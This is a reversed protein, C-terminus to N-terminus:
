PASTVLENRLKKRLTVFFGISFVISVAAVITWWSFYPQHIASAALVNPSDKRKRDDAYKIVDSVAQPLAFAEPSEGPKKGRTDTVVMKAPSSVLFVARDIEENIKHKSNLSVILWRLNNDHYFVEIVVTPVSIGNVTIHHSQWMEYAIGKEEAKITAQLIDGVDNFRFAHKGFIGTHSSKSDNKVTFQDEIIKVNPIYRLHEHQIKYISMNSNDDIYVQSPTAVVSVGNTVVVRNVNNVYNAVSKGDINVIIKEMKFNQIGLRNKILAEASSSDSVATKNMADILLDRPIKKDTLGFCKYSTSTFEATIVEEQMSKWRSITKKAIERETETGTQLSFTLVAMLATALFMAGGRQVQCQKYVMLVVCYVLTYDM